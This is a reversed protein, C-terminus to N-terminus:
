VVAEKKAAFRAAHAARKTERKTDGIKAVRKESIDRAFRRGANNQPAYPRM